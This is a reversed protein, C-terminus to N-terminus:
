LRRRVGAAAAHDRERCIIPFEMDSGMIVEKIFAIHRRAASRWWALVILLPLGALFWVLAAEGNAVHPYGPIDAGPIPQPRRLGALNYILPM